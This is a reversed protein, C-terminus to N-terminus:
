GFRSPGGRSRATIIRKTNDETEDIIVIPTIRNGVVRGTVIVTKEYRNVSYPALEVAPNQFIVRRLMTKLAINGMPLLLDNFGFALSALLVSVVLLPAFITRLSVGAARLAMIERDSALRGVAMLGGVLTGFPLAYTVIIPVSYLVLLAVDGLPVRKALIREAMLLLQNVFFIFFFFAFAVLFATALERAVYLQVTRFRRRM